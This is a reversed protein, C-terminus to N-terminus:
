RPVDGVWLMTDSLAPALANYLRRDATIFPVDEAIALAVYAADYVSVEHKLALAVALETNPRRFEAILSILRTMIEACREASIERRRTKKVCAQGAELMILDPAIFQSSSDALWADAEGGLVEPFFWKLAVSADVVLSSATM